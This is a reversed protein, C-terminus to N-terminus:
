PQDVAKLEISFRLTTVDYGRAVLEQVLTKGDHVIIDGLARFLIRGDSMSTGHGGTGYVIDPGQGDADRGYRAVLQGPKAQVRRWRKREAM